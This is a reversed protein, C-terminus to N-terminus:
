LKKRHMEVETCSDPHFYIVFRDSGGFHAKELVQEFLYISTERIRCCITQRDCTKSRQSRLADRRIAPLM